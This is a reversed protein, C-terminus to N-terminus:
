SARYPAQRQEAHFRSQSATWAATDACMWGIAEIIERHLEALPRHFIPEHHAVRNRFRRLANLRHHAVSRPRAGGVRFAQNLCRRWLTHDYRPGLLSVWFGFGLAAILDGPTLNAVFRLDHDAQAIASRADANLPANGNTFWDAGYAASMRDNLKNRLCVELCQLPTYFAESLRMNREYLALAASLDNNTSALYKKLRDRSLSRELATIAPSTSLDIEQFQGAISGYLRRVGRTPRQRM